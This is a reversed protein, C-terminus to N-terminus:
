EYTYVRNTYIIYFAQASESYSVHVCSLRKDLIFDGYSVGNILLSIKEAGKEKPVSLHGAHGLQPETVFYATIFKDGNIRIDIPQNNFGNDFEFEMTASDDKVYGFGYGKDGKKIEDRSATDYHIVLKQGICNIAMILFIVLLYYTTKM